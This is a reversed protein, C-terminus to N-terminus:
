RSLEPINQVVNSHTNKKVWESGGVISLILLAAIAAKKMNQMHHIHERKERELYQKYHDTHDYVGHGEPLNGDKDIQAFQENLVAM